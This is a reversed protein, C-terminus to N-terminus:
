FPYGIGLNFEGQGLVDSSLVFRNGLPQAPDYMKMGIDLRILVYSFDVRLGGGVGIAFEKWFDNFEFKAGPRSEDEEFMWINSADLFFAWNFISFIKTRWEINGEILIEGSQEFNSGNEPSYSGPGIRRARWARNSNSGGSFFYKDYPVGGIGDGYPQVVGIHLRTAIQQRQPVIPIQQRMDLYIKYFQFPTLGLIKGEEDFANDNLLNLYNGGVEGFIKIFSSKEYGSSGYSKSSKSYFGSMSSVLSNDFNYILTNDGRERIAAEFEEWLYPTSIINVDLPTFNILANKKDRWQYGMTGQINLREYEQREVQSAGLTFKTQAHRAFFNRKMNKSLPFMIRPFNISLDIGAEQGYTYASSGNEGRAVNTQAELSYRTSLQIVEAGHFPNRNKWTFSVFPGPLSANVNLGTEFSYQLRDFSSTFIHAKLSGDKIKEYKVNVFKFIDMNGLVSRTDNTKDESYLGKDIFIKSDLVRKSYHRGQDLYTIGEYNTTDIDSKLSLADIDTEFTISDVTYVQHADRDEPTKIIVNIDILNQTLGTDVDFYLYSKNFDYYGQNKLLSTIWDREKEIKNEKFIQGEQLPSEEARLLIKSQLLSDESYYDVIRIKSPTNEEINYTVEVKKGVTDIDSHVKADFYGEQQLFLEIQSQTIYVYKEDFIVPKEGMSRMMWNGESIYTRLSEIKKNNKLKVKRVKKLQSVTDREYKAELKYISRWKDITDEWHLSQLRAREKNYAEKIQIFKEEEIEVQKDHISDLKALKATNKPLEKKYLKHGVNYLHLFWSSGLLKRNPKQRALAFIRDKSVEETGEVNISHLLYEDEKLYKTPSCAVCLFLFAVSIYILKIISRFSLM